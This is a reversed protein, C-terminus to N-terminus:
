FVFLKLLCPNEIVLLGLLIKHKDLGLTLFNYQSCQSAARGPVTVVVAVEWDQTCDVASQILNSYNLATNVRSM